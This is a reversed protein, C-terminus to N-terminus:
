AGILHAIYYAGWETIQVLHRVLSDGFVYVVLFPGFFSMYDAYEVYAYGREFGVVIAYRFGNFIMSITAILINLYVMSVLFFALVITTSSQGATFIDAINLHPANFFIMFPRSYYSFLKLILNSTVVSGFCLVAISLAIIAMCISVVAETMYAIMLKIFRFTGHFSSPDIPVTQFWGIGLFLLALFGFADIHLLPNFSLLGADVATRDGLKYAVWTQIYGNITHSVMFATILLILAFLFEAFALNM